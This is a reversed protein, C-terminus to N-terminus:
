LAQKSMISYYFSVQYFFGVGITFLYLLTYSWSNLAM